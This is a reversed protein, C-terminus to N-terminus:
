KLNFLAVHTTGDDLTFSLTYCGAKSPTAWNYIYQTGDNRLSTSGSAVTELADTPAAGCGTASYRIATVVSTDTVPTLSPLSALSFKVPYTRGATGTNVIPPNDVPSLFGTFQYQVVSVHRTATATNGDKDTGQLTITYDGPPWGGAPPGVDTKNGSGSASAPGTIQWSAALVGDDADTVLGSLPFPSTAPVNADFPTYIAAVPPQHATTVHTTFTTTSTQVGNSVVPTITPDHLPQNDIQPCIPSPEYTFSFSAVGGNVSSPQLGVALPIQEGNGCDYNVHGVLNNPDGGSATFGIQTASRVKVSLPQSFAPDLVGNVNFKVTCTLTAGPTAGAGVTITEGFKVAGGSTVTHSEADFAVSLNPDCDALQPTVTAPLNGLGALIAASVADPNTTTELVGKTANVIATAQGTQDLSTGETSTVPIAIVRIGAANLNAITSDLTAGNSPDHGPADGFWVIIRTAGDRWGIDTRTALQSLANLQAEPADCGSGPPASWTNIATQVDATTATLARDLSFPTEFPGGETLQCNFDKYSAAGFHAQSQAALVQTMITAVNGQMNALTGGMSGTTDALFVVDPKPPIVPTTYNVSSSITDGPAFGDPTVSPPDPQASRSYITTGNYQLEVKSIGQPAEFVGGFVAAGLDIRGPLNADHISNRNSYPIGISTPDGNFPTFKVTLNSTPDPASISSGAPLSATFSEVVHTGGPTFDTTGSIMFQNASPAAIGGITPSTCDISMGAGLNCLMAAFDAGEFDTNNNNWPTVFRMASHDDSLYSRNAVNYARDPAGTDATTNLSHFTTNVGSVFKEQAFTHALEMAMLAGTMSPQAPQSRTAAVDPIARVWAETAPTGPSQGATAAMGEACNYASTNGDSIASDVVGLVKDAPHTANAPNSNYTTLFTDLQGKIGNFNSSTGCFKGNPDYTGALPRLNLLGPDITYRIGGTNLAIDNSIGFPVPYIRSLTNFGNVVATQAATGFQSARTQGADGMPVVLIRLANSVTDFQSPLAPSFTATGSTGASTTYTITATFTLQFANTDACPSALCSNANPAPLVFKPDSNADVSVTTAPIATGSTGFSQYATIPSTLSAGTSSTAALRAGTVSISGSCSTGVTAPLTLFFRVLTEKNRALRAYSGVGQNVTVAGLQPTLSTCAPLGAAGRSVGAALLSVIVACLALVVPLRRLM